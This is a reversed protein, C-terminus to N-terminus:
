SPTLKQFILFGTKVNEKNNIREEIVAIANDAGEKPQRIAERNDLDEQNGDFLNLTM